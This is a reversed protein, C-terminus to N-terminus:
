GEVDEEISEYDSCWGDLFNPKLSGNRRRKEGEEGEGDDEGEREEGGEEKKWELSNFHNPILFSTLYLCALAITHPPYSLTVLTRHVDIAILHALFTYNKSALGDFGSLILM